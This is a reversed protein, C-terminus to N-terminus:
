THQQGFYSLNTREGDITVYSAINKKVTMRVIRVGTPLGSFLHSDDWLEERISHLENYASLFNIIKDNTVDESLNFLKVEVAGDEM